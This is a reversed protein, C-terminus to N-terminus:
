PKFATALEKLLQQFSPTGPHIMDFHGAEPIVRTSPDKKLAPGIPVISDQDGHLLINKDNLTQTAPNALTYAVKKETAAGGMFQPTVLQCSNTGLAYHEIDVIAALGIVASFNFKMKAGALLALHGGASHGVLAIKSLDIPYDSLNSAYLIAQQIDNYSGPWGGGSDGVRRYEISWVAYGSQSLATSLAHSHKIDYQNLWCGGHIFIVLPHKFSSSSPTPLWLEAFQLDDEGYSILTTPSSTPLEIVQSYNVNSKSPLYCAVPMEDQPRAGTGIPTILLFFLIILRARNPRM